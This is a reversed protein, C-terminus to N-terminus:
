VYLEFGIKSYIFQTYTPLNMGGNKIEQIQKKEQMKKPKVNQQM